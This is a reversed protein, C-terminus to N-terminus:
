IDLTNYSYVTEEWAVSPFERHFVKRKKLYKGEFTLRAEYASGASGGRIVLQYSNETYELSFERPDALDYYASLRFVMVKDGYKASMDSIYPKVRPNRPIVGWRDKQPTGPPYQRTTIEFAIPVGDPTKGELSIKKEVYDAGNAYDMSACSLAVIAILSTLIAKKM